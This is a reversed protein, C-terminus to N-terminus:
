ECNRLFAQMVKKNQPTLGGFSEPHWQVGVAFKQKPMFIGEILQDESVATVALNQGLDKIAQHHRSNVSLDAKKLLDFLLTDKSLTVDHQKRAYPPTSMQHQVKTPFETPIDQYLTGGNVVNLVQLGRCICFMPLNRDIVQRMAYFEMEDRDAKIQGCVALKEEHYHAPDIDHGGSFLIGDCKELYSDWIEKDCVEPFPLPSAGNDSLIQCYPVLFEENEKADFLPTVGIVPKM